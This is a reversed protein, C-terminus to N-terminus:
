QLIFMRTEPPDIDVTISEAAPAVVKGTHFDLVKCKRPLRITQPGKKVSHLSVFTECAHVVNNTESWINCGAYRACERILEPPLPVAASFVVAYDGEGRPGPKGSGAAGKGFDNVFLGTRDIWYYSWVHGLPKATTEKPDLRRAAPLLLPGYAYNDSFTSTALRKSIPHGGDQLLIRRPSSKHFLQMKVGLLKSATEASLKESDTIATGPGFIAVNGDRLVKKKLLAIVEDNVRFLNPFLWVKYAPMNARKLDDLLHVRYPIGSLALGEQIQRFVALHQYGSSFDEDLASRDDIVMCVADRTERWPLEALRDIAERQRKIHKFIVPDHFWWNQGCVSMFYYMQNRSVAWALTRDFGAIMEKENRFTGADNSVGRELPKGYRDRGVWTRMDAEMFNVKGRLALSDAIGEAEWAYGVARNYYFGPTNIMDIGGYDLLKAGGISGSALLVHAFDDLIGPKWSGDFEPIVMWGQMHQKIMDCGKIVPRRSTAGALAGFMTRFYYSFVQEQLEFYDRERRVKAPDPWHLLRLRKKKERWQPDTPVRVEAIRAAPDFWAKQLAADTKYKRRVFRQWAKQMPASQDFLGGHIALESAGEGYPFITYGVIRNRWPMAECWAVTDLIMRRLGRLYANSAFSAKISLKKSKEPPLGDLPVHQDKHKERWPGDPQNGFRIIFHAEPDRALLWKAMENVDRNWSGPNLPKGDNSWLPNDFFKGRPKPWVVLQYLHVGAQIFGVQKLGWDKVTHDAALGYMTWPIVKGESSRIVTRGKRQVLRYSIRKVPPKPPAKAPTKAPSQAQAGVAALCFVVVAFLHKHV